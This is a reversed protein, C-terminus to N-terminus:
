VRSLSQDSRIQYRFIYISITKQEFVGKATPPIILASTHTRYPGPGQSWRLIRGKITKGRAGRSEYEGRAFGM